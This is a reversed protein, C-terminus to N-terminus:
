INGVGIALLINITKLKDVKACVKHLVIAFNNKANL